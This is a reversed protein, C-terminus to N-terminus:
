APVEVNLLMQKLREMLWVVSGGDAISSAFYESGDPNYGLVVVKDLDASLAANLIREPPVDLTTVGNFILIEASM